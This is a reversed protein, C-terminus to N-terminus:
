QIFNINKALFIQMEANEPLLSVRQRQLADGATGFASESPVSTGPIALFKKALVKLMPFSAENAKWWTLPCEDFSVRPMAMYENLEKEAKSADDALAEESELGFIKALTRKRPPAPGTSPEMSAARLSGQLDAMKKVAEQRVAEPAELFRLRFRPDCLTALGLTTATPASDYKESLAGLIKRKIDKLLVSDGEQPQLSKKIQRYLPLVSSATVYSSGSLTTTFDELVTAASVFDQVASIDDGELMLHRKSPYDMLAKSLPLQNELFSRCLKLLSCWRTPCASPLGVKDMELMEQARTLDRRMKWSRCISNQLRKLRRVARRLQTLNLARNVGDNINHAFCSIHELGLQWVARLINAGNDTMSCFVNKVDIGWESLADRLMECLVAASPEKGFHRCALCADTLKWEDSIFHVTVAVFPAGAVSTWCDTTVALETKTLRCIERKMKEVTDKYLKPVGATAFYNRGPLPYEPKLTNVMQIFKPHDVTNYPELCTALYETIAQTCSSLSKPNLPESDSATNQQESPSEAVTVAASASATEAAPEMANKHSPVSVDRSSSPLERFELPHKLQLHKGLNSTNRGKASVSHLCIKCIAVGDSVVHGSEDAPLGFHVWFPSKTKRKDVLHHYEPCELARPHPPSNEVEQSHKGTHADCGTDTPEAGNVRGLESLKLCNERHKASEEHVKTKLSIQKMDAMGTRAWTAAGGFLLCPFCLFANKSTSGCLWEKRDYWARSFRRTVPKGKELVTQVICLDPRDPGLEKICRQEALSRQPFPNRLLAEVSNVKVCNCSSRRSCAELKPHKARKASVKPQISCLQETTPLNEAQVISPEEERKVECIPELAEGLEGFWINLPRLPCYSDIESKIEPDKSGAASYGEMCPPIVLEELWRILDPRPMLPDGGELSTVNRYNELMIEKYLAKQWPDLLEWEEKTFHIVVEEFSVLGQASQLAAMEERKVM